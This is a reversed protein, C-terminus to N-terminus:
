GYQKRMETTYRIWAGAAKRSCIQRFSIIICLILHTMSGMEM